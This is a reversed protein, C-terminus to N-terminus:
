KPDDIHLRIWWTNRDLAVESTLGLKKMDKRVIEMWILKPREIRQRCGDACVLYREKYSGGFIQM